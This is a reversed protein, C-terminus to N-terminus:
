SIMGIGSSRSSVTYFDGESWYVSQRVIQVNQAWYRIRCMMLNQFQLHDDYHTLNSKRQSYKLNVARKFHYM